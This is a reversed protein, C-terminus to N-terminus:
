TVHNIHASMGSFKWGTKLVKLKFIFIEVWFKSVKLMFKSVKL